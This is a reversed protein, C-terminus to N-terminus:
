CAVNVWEHGVGSWLGGGTRGWLRRGARRGEGGRGGERLWVWVWVGEWVWVWVVAGEWVWGVQHGAGSGGHGGGGGGCDPHLPRPCGFRLCLAHRGGRRPDHAAPLGLVAPPAAPPPLPCCDPPCCPSLRCALVSCSSCARCSAAGGQGRQPATLAHVPGGSGSAAPQVTCPGATNSGRGGRRRGVELAPVLFDEAAKSMVWFLMGMWALFFLAAFVRGDGSRCYFLALYNIHHVDAACQKNYQVFTCSCAASPPPPPTPLAEPYGTVPRAAPPGLLLPLRAQRALALRRAAPLRV